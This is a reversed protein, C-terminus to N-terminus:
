KKPDAVVILIRGNGSIPGVPYDGGLVPFKTPDEQPPKPSRSLRLIVNEQTLSMEISKRGADGLSIADTDLSGNSVFFQVTCNNLFVGNYQVSVDLTAIPVTITIDPQPM